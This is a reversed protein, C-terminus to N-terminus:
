ASSSSAVSISASSWCVAGARVAAPSYTGVTSTVSPTLICPAAQVSPALALGPLALLLALLLRPLPALPM